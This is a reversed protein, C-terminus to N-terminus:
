MRLDCAPMDALCDAGVASSRRRRLIAALTPERQNGASLSGLTVTPWEWKRFLTWGRSHRHRRLQPSHRRLLVAPDADALPGLRPGRRRVARAPNRARRERFPRSLCGCSSTTHGCRPNTRGAHCASPLQNRPSARSMGAARTNSSGTRTSASSPPHTPDPVSDRQGDVGRRM